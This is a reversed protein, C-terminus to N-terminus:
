ALLGVVVIVWAMAGIVTKMSMKRLWASGAAAAGEKVQWIAIHPGTVNGKDEVCQGMASGVVQSDWRKGNKKGGKGDDVQEFLFQDPILCWLACGDPGGMHVENDPKLNCCATMGALSEPWNPIAWVSRKQPLGDIQFLDPM